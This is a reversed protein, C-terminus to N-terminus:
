SVLLTRAGLGGPRCGGLRGVARYFRADYIREM